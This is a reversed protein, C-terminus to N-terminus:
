FRLESLSVLGSSPLVRSGSFFRHRQLGSPDSQMKKVLEKALKIQSPGSDLINKIDTLMITMLLVLQGWFSTYELQQEATPSQLVLKLRDTLFHSFQQPESSFFLLMLVFIQADKSKSSSQLSPHNNALKQLLESLDPLDPSVNVEYIPTPLFKKKLFFPYYRSRVDTWSTKLLHSEGPQSFCSVEEIRRKWLEDITAKDDDTMARSEKEERWGNIQDYIETLSIINEAQLAQSKLRDYNDQPMKTPQIFIKEIKEWADCLNKSLFQKKFRDYHVNLGALKSSLEKAGLGYYQFPNDARNEVMMQVRHNPLIRGSLLIIRSEKGEIFVVQVAKKADASSMKTLDSLVLPKNLYYMGFLLQELNKDERLILNEGINALLNFNVILDDDAKKLYINLCFALSVVSNKYIDRNLLNILFFKFNSEINKKRNQVAQTMYGHRFIDIQGFLTMSLRWLMADMSQDSHTTYLVSLRSQLKGNRIFDFQRLVGDSKNHVASNIEQCLIFGLRQVNFCYQFRFPNFNKMKEKILPSILLSNNCNAHSLNDICLATLPGMNKLESSKALSHNWETVFNELYKLSKAENKLNINIPITLKDQCPIGSNVDSQIQIIQGVQYARSYTCLEEKGRRIVELLTQSNAALYTKFEPKLVRHEASGEPAINQTETFSIFIVQHKGINVATTIRGKKNYPVGEELGFGSTKKLEREIAEDHDSLFKVEALPNRSKILFKEKVPDPIPINGEPTMLTFLLTLNMREALIKAIPNRLDALDTLLTHILKKLPLSEAAKIQQYSEKLSDLIASFNKALRENFESIHDIVATIEKGPNLSIMVSLQAAMNGQGDFFDHTFLYPRNAIKISKNKSEQGIEAQYMKLYPSSGEIVQFNTSNLGSVLFKAEKSFYYYHEGITYKM